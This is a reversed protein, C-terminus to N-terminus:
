LGGGDQKHKELIENIQRVVKEPQPVAIFEFNAETGATQIFVNGFDFFSDLIGGQKYTVDQIKELQTSSIQKYLLNLWDIDVVRRNTVIYINFYWKLFNTFAYGVTGLYWLFPLMIFYGAPIGSPLINLRLLFPGFFFPVGILVLTIFIWNSNTVPHARLLLLIEEETEQTEFRIGRPKVMFASLAGGPFLRNLGKQKASATAAVPPPDTVPTNATFIEPM